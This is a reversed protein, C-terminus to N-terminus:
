KTIRTAVTETRVRNAKRAQFTVRGANTATVRLLGKANTRRSALRRGNAFVSAGAVPTARGTTAYQVVRVMFSRHLRVRKPVSIGLPLVPKNRCGQTASDYVCRDVFFLVRDGAKLATSCIGSQSAKHNVWLTWSDPSGPHKEGKITDVLYDKFSDFYTGSWDGGTGQELAGAASQGSCAHAPNGDKVLPADALTVAHDAVLTKASGEVRVHTTIPGAAVATAGSLLLLGGCLLGALRIPM